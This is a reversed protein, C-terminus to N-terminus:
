CLQQSGGTVSLTGQSLWSKDQRPAKFYLPERSQCYTSSCTWSSWPTFDKICILDTRSHCTREYPDFFPAQSPMLLSYWDVFKIPFVECEDRSTRLEYVRLVTRGNLLVPWQNGSDDNMNICIVWFFFAEEASPMILVLLLLLFFDLWCFFGRLIPM